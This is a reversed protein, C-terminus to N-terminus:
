VVKLIESHQLFNFELHVEEMSHHEKQDPGPFPGPDAGGGGGGGYGPGTNSGDFGNMGQPGGTGGVVPSSTTGGAGGGGSGLPANQFPNPGTDEVVLVQVVMDLRGSNWWPFNCRYGSGIKGPTGGNNSNDNVAAGGAGVVVNVAM